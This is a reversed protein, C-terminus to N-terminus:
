DMCGVVGAADFVLRVTAPTYGVDCSIANDDFKFYHYLVAGGGYSKAFADTGSVFELDDERSGTYQIYHPIDSSEVTAHM